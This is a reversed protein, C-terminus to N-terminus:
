RLEEHNQNTDDHDYYIIISSTKYEDLWYGKCTMFSSPETDELSWHKKKEVNWTIQMSIYPSAHSVVPTSEYSM